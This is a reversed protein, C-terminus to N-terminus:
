SVNVLIEKPTHDVHNLHIDSDLEGASDKPPDPKGKSSTLANIAAEVMEKAVKEWRSKAQNHQQDDTIEVVLELDNGIQDYLTRSTSKNIEIYEDKTITHDNYHPKLAAAVLKQVNEKSSLSM